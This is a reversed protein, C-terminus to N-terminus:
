FEMEEIALKLLWQNEKQFQIISIKNEEYFYRTTISQEKLFQNEQGKFINKFNPSFLMEFNQLKEQAEIGCSKKNGQTFCFVGNEKKIEAFPIDLPGLIQILFNENNEIWILRGNHHKKNHFDTFSFRSKLYFDAIEPRPTLNACASLIFILPILYFIRNEVTLGFNKQFNWMGKYSLFAMLAVLGLFLFRSLLRKTEDDWKM